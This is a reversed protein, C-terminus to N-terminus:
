AERPVRGGTLLEYFKPTFRILIKASIFVFPIAIAGTSFRWVLAFSETVTSSEFEANFLGSLQVIMDVGHLVFIHVAYTYFSIQMWWKLGFTFWRKDLVIWFSVFRVHEAVHGILTSPWFCALLFIIGAIVLSLARHRLNYEESLLRKSHNLGLYTGLCYTPAYQLMRVVESRAMTSPFFAAEQLYPVGLYEALYILVLLVEAVYRIRFIRRFLPLFLLMILLEQVFWLQGCYRTTVFSVIVHKIGKGWDHYTFMGIFNWILLPILLTKIRRLVKSGINDESMDYYLLFAATIMFFHAGGFGVFLYEIVYSLRDTLSGTNIINSFFVNANAHYFILLTSYIMSIITIKKSLEKDM